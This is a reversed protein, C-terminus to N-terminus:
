KWAIAMGSKVQWTAGDKRRGPRALHRAFGRGHAAECLGVGCRRLSVRRARKQLPEGVNEPHPNAQERNPYYFMVRVPKYGADRVAQM